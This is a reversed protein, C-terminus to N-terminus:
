ADAPGIGNSGSREAASCPRYRGPSRTSTISATFAEIGDIVAEFRISALLDFSHQAGPLEVYVVPESSARLVREALTRATKASTLTDHEGHAILLPPSGREAYDFPSSPLSERSDTEGYYGYLGVVAAVSTDAQEFEPQYASDGTTFGTLTALRAGYSSGVLVIRDPDGGYEIAHARAWAIVKKVDILDDPFTGASGLRYNASICVWGQRALRFLLRRAYFSKRGPALSFGGGHLHILVPGGSSDARRRYLDLCNRRGADGYSLNPIRRVGAHFIPLPAFLIRAWPPDAALSQGGGAHRWGGIGRDLAQEIAPSARLSRRVLVPTGVFSATALGVAVWVGLGHLNGQSAALWTSAGLWYCILFPSENPLASIFWTIAGGLGLRSPPWLSLAMGLAVLGLTILLGIPM